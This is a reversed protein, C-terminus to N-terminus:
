ERDGVAAAVAASTPGYIVLDYVKDEAHAQATVCIMISFLTARKMKTPGQLRPRQLIKAQGM